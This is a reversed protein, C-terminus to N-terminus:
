GTLRVDEVSAATRTRVLVAGSPLPVAGLEEADGGVVFVTSGSGTLEAILAGGARAAELVGAIEPHRGAVEREFDNGALRAVGNWSTLTEIDLLRGVAAAPQTRRAEAVWGFAEASSVGFPFCVLGIERAPLPPLAVMRDGRGWALALPADSTVFPVDAGLRAAIGALAEPGVPNPALADLARLVAGADASGGGLGGGIPIRKEVTIDFGHPWGTAEAYTTAGRFALNSAPPGVDAVGCDISRAEGGVRVTIEDALELRTFLTELGHYGTAERALIRLFLNLKAQARVRAM